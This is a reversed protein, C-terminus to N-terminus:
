YGTNSNAEFWYRQEAAPAPEEHVSPFIPGHQGETKLGELNIHEKPLPPPM